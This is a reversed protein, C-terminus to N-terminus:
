SDASEEADPPRPRSGRVLAQAIEEPTADIPPLTVNASPSAPKEPAEVNREPKEPM